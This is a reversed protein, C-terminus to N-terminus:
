DLAKTLDKKDLQDIDLRLKMEKDADRDAFYNMQIIAM